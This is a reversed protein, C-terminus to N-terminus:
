ENLYYDLNQTNSLYSEVALDNNTALSSELELIDNDDLNDIIDFTIVNPQYALYNEMTVNEIPKTEISNFYAPIAIALVFIAAISSIWVQKRYFLSVVKPEEKLNIKALIKSEFNDFYNEPVKFGSNIKNKNLDFEKM